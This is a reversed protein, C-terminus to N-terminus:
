PLDYNFVPIFGQEHLVKLAKIVPSHLLWNDSTKAFDVNVYDGHRFVETMLEIRKLPSLKINTLFYLFSARFSFLRPHYLTKNRHRRPVQVFDSM